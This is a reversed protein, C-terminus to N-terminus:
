SSAIEWAERWTTAKGDYGEVRWLALAYVIRDLWRPLRSWLWRPLTPIM